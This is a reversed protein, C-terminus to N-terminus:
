FSAEMSLRITPDSVPWAVNLEEGLPSRGYSLSSHLGELWQSRLAAYFATDSGGALGSGQLRGILAATASLLHRRLFRQSLELGYVSDSAAQTIFDYSRWQGGIQWGAGPWPQGRLLAKTWTVRVAPSLPQGSVAAKDENKLAGVLVYGLPQNRDNELRTEFTRGVYTKDSSAHSYTQLTWAVGRGLGAGWGQANDAPRWGLAGPHFLIRAEDRKANYLVDSLTADFGAGVDAYSGSLEFAGASLGATLKLADRSEDIPRQWLYPLGADDRLLRREPAAGWETRGYAAGLNLGLPLAVQGDVALIQSSQEVPANFLDAGPAYGLRQQLWTGGVYSGTPGPAKVRLGGFASGGFTFPASGWPVAGFAQAQLGGLGGKWRLASVQDYAAQAYGDLGNDFQRGATYVGLLDDFAPAAEGVSFALEQGFGKLSAHSGAPLVWASGDASQGARGAVKLALPGAKWRLALEAEAQHQTSSGASGIRINDVWVQGHRAKHFLLTLKTLQGPGRLEKDFTTLVQTAGEAGSASGAFKWVPADLDFSLDRNWGSRLPLQLSEVWTGGPGVSFALGFGMPPGPNYVDLRLKSAQSLDPLAPAGGGPEYIVGAKDQGNGRLVARLAQKGQSAGEGGLSVVSAGDAVGAVQGKWGSLGKEFSGEGSGSDWLAWSVSELALGAKLGGEVALPASSGPIASRRLASVKALYLSGQGPGSAVVHWYARRLAGPGRGPLSAGYAWQTAAHKFVPGELPLELGHNWGPALRLPRSEMWDQGAGAQIALALDVADAGPNYADVRLARVGRLDVPITWEFDASQGRETAAWDLRLAPGAGPLSFAPSLAAGRARPHEPGAKAPSGGSGDWLPDEWGQLAPAPALAKAAADDAARLRLNDITLSLSGTDGPNWSFGFRRVQHSPLPGNNRWNSAASKYDRSHFNFTLNRNWGNKLSVSPSAAYDWNEGIATAFALMAPPGPNYVDLVVSQVQSLDLEIDYGFSGDAEPDQSVAVLRLGQRGHTYREFDPESRVGIGYIPQLRSNPGEFSDVLQERAGTIITPALEASKPGGVRVNDLYLAGQTPAKPTLLISIKPIPNTSMLAKGQFGNRLDVGLGKNWGPKLAPLSVANWGWDNGSQIILQVDWEARTGNFLDFHLSDIGTFDADPLLWFGAKPSGELSPVEVRGGFSYRGESAVDRSIAAQVLGGEEATTWRTGGLEFGEWVAAPAAAGLALLAVLVGPARMM